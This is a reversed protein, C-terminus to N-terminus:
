GTQCYVGSFGNPCMCEATGMVDMCTAENECPMTVCTAPAALNLLSFSNENVYSKEFLLGNEYSQM